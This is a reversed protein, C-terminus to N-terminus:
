RYLATFPGLYAIQAAALLVDGTLKVYRVTLNEAAATWRTKEGGLGAILKQARDLKVKCMEVDREL